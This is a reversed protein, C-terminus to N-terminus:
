EAEDALPLLDTEDVIREFNENESRVRYRLAGGEYPLLFVVRCPSAGRSIDRGGPAMSLRQGVDFRHSRGVRIARNKLAANVVPMNVQGPGSETNRRKSQNRTPIAINKFSSM